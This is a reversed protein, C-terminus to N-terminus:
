DVEDKSITAVSSPVTTVMVGCFGIMPCGAFTVNLIVSLSPCVQLPLAVETLASWCGEPVVTVDLWGMAIEMLSSETLPVM